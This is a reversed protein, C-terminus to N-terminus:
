PHVHGTARGISPDITYADGTVPCVPVAEPYYVPYLDDVTKPYADTDMWYREISTNIDARYQHCAERKARKTHGGLRPLVIAVLIGMITIVALLELLSFGRKRVALTKASRFIM